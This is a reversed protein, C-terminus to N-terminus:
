GSESPAPLALATKPVRRTAAASRGALLLGGLTLASTVALSSTLVGGPSDHPAVVIVAAEVTLLLWLLRGPRPDGAAVAALLAFQTLAWLLGLVAFPAALGIADAYGTDDGAVVRVLPGAAVEALGVCAVGVALVALASRLLLRGNGAAAGRSLRPFVVVPVFSAGWLSAKAFLGALAYTGSADASLYHRALLLDLSSLVAMGAIASCARTLDGVLPRPDTPGRSRWSRPSSMWWLVITGVATGAALAGITGAVSLGALASVVAALFRTGAQVIQALGFALYREHGLMSGLLAGGVTYPLLLVGLWITPLPGALHFYAAALPSIAVVVVTLAAGVVVALTLGAPENVGDRLGSAATRRALVYQLAGAPIGGILGMGLLTGLAGYEAPGFSRTLVITMAYSLANALVTAAALIVGASALSPVRGAEGSSRVPVGDGM